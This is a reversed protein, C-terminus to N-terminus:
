KKEPEVVPVPPPLLTWATFERGDVGQLLWARWPLVTALDKRNGFEAPDVTVGVVVEVTTTKETTPAVSFQLTVQSRDQRLWTDGGRAKPLTQPAKGTEIITVSVSVGPGFDWSLKSWGNKALNEGQLFFSTTSAPITVRRVFQCESSTSYQVGGFFQCPDSPAVPTVEQQASAKALVVLLFVTLTRV